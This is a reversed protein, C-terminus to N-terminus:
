GPIQRVNGTRAALRPLQCERDTRRVTGPVVSGQDAILMFDRECIEQLIDKYILALKENELEAIFLKRPTSLSGLPRTAGGGGLDEFLKCRM